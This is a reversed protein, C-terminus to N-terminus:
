EEWWKDEFKKEGANWVKVWKGRGEESEPPPSSPLEEWTFEKAEDDVKRTWGRCQCEEGKEEYTCFRPELAQGVTHWDAGHGCHKCIM